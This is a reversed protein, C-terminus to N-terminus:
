VNTGAYHGKDILWQYLERAVEDYILVGQASTTKSVMAEYDSGEISYGKMTTGKARIGKVFDDGSVTGMQATFQISPHELNVGFQLIKVHTYPGNPDVDGVNYPTTLQLM